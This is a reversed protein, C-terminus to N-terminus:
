ELANIARRSPLVAYMPSSPCFDEAESRPENADVTLCRPLCFNKAAKTTASDRARARLVVVGGGSSWVFAATPPTAPYCNVLIATFGQRERDFRWM